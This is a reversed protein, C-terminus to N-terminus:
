LIIFEHWESGHPYSWNKWRWGYEQVWFVDEVGFSVLFLVVVEV